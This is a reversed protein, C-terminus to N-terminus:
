QEQGLWFAAQGNSEGALVLAGDLVASANVWSGTGGEGSIPFPMATWAGGEVSIQHPGYNVVGGESCLGSWYSRLVLWRGASHLSPELPCANEDASAKLDVEIKDPGSWDLGNASLWAAISTVRLATDRTVSLIVWDAGIAAVSVAGEPPTSAEFWDRGNASAIAFPTGPEGYPGQTGAVVFGEEGADFGLRGDMFRRVMEWTRGDSSYWVESGHTDGVQWVDALVGREGQVAARMWREGPLGTETPTWDRGDESQWAGFGTVTVGGDPDEESVMGVALLIGDTRRIVTSLSTNAFVGHPTVDKWTRGDLSSWVRGEHPPTPGVIPLHGEYEVGVAIIEEGHRAM